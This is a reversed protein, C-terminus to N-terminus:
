GRRAAPGRGRARALVLDPGLRREPQGAPDSPPRDSRPDSSPGARDVELREPWVLASAKARSSGLPLSRAIIPTEEAAPSDLHGAGDVDLVRDVAQVGIDVQLADLDARAVLDHHVVRRGLTGGIPSRM